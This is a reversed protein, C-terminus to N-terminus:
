KKRLAAAGLGIGILGLLVGLVGLWGALGLGSTQDATPQLPFQVTDPIAVEEPQVEASVDTDGLKGGLVVTYQGPISPLIPAVFQGPTDEGLPQLTLLKTQDGYKVSVTLDAVDEVPEEEGKSVNVVIANMQGAIPPETVWGIEIVYDGANVAEHAFALQFNLFLFLLAIFCASVLFKRNM